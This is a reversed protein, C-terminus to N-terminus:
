RRSPVLAKAVFPSDAHGAGSSGEAAFAIMRQPGRAPGEFVRNGARVGTEGVGPRVACTASHPWKCICLPGSRERTAAKM